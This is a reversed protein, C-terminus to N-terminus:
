AFREYGPAALPWPMAVELAHALAFLKGDGWRPGIIQLGVPVGDPGVGIPVSIAPHGSINFFATNSIGRLECEISWAGPDMGVPMEPTAGFPDPLDSNNVLTLLVADRGLLLDIEAALAPRCLYADVLDM